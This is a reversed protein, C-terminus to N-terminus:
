LIVVPESWGLQKSGPLSASPGILPRWKRRYKFVMSNYFPNSRIRAARRNRSWVTVPESLAATKWRRGALSMYAMSNEAESVEQWSVVTWETPKAEESRTRQLYM